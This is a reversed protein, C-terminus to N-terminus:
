EASVNTMDGNENQLLNMVHIQDSSKINLRWFGTGDGLEGNLIPADGSELQAATLTVSSQPNILLEAEKSQEGEDDIGHIQVKVSSKQPNTMRLLSEVEASGAPHFMKVTFRRGFLAPVEDRLSTLLGNSMRAYALVSLDLDSELILYWDGEGVGLGQSLRKTENGAMVDSATLNVSKHVDLTLGETEFMSGKDDFGRIHINAEYASHNVLRLFGEMNTRVSPFYTVTYVQLPDIGAGVKELWHLWEANLKDTVGSQLYTRFAAYDGSRMTALMERVIAKRRTLLYRVALYGWGYVADSGERWQTDFVDLLDRPERALKTAPLNRDGLSLYDALGEVWWNLWNADGRYVRYPGPKNYRGDLYHVYEHELNWVKVPSLWTAMYAFFRPVNNIDSPEGEIYIGGNNTPIAYFWNAYLQYADYDEFVVAQLSENFDNAVPIRGTELTDHFLSDIEALSDCAVQNQTETMRQAIIEVPALTCTHSSALVNAQIEEKMGCTDFLECLRYYDILRVTNVYPEKGYDYPDYINLIERVVARAEDVLAFGSFSAPRVLEAAANAVLTANVDLMWDLLALHRLGSLLNRDNDFLSAYDSERGNAIRWHIRLLLLLARVQSPQSSRQRDMRLSLLGITKAVSAFHEKHDIARFFSFLVSGHDEGADYFHDNAIFIDFVRSLERRVSSSIDYPSEEYFSNWNAMAIFEFLYVLTDTDSKDYISANAEIARAIALLKQNTITQQLISTSIGGFMRRDCGKAFENLVHEVFKAGTLTAFSEYDCQTESASFNSPRSSSTSPTVISLLPKPPTRTVEILRISDMNPNAVVSSFKSNPLETTHTAIGYGLSGLLFANQLLIKVYKLAPRIAQLAQNTLNLYSTLKSSVRSNLRM